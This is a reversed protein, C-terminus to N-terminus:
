KADSAVADLSMEEAQRAKQEDLLKRLKSGKKTGEQLTRFFKALPYDSKIKYEVQDNLSDDVIKELMEQNLDSINYIIGDISLSGDEAIEITTAM